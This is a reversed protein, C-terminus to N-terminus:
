SINTTKTVFSKEPNAGIVTNKIRFLEMEMAEQTPTNYDSALPNKILLGKDRLLKFLRKEGVTCKSQKLIKAMERVLICHEADSIADAFKAKPELVKIEEAQEQTKAELAQKEKQEEIWREARKIPDEIMYSNTPIEAKLSVEM